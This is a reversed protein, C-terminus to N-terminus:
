DEFIRVVPLTFGPLFPDASLTQTTNFLEVPQGPRHVTATMFDADIVWVVPVGAALSENIFETVNQKVDNLSLIKAVFTPVADILPSRDTLRAVIDPALYVIDIELCTDPDRRLHVGPLCYAEGRPEAQKDIWNGFLYALQASVQSHAQTHYRKERERLQSRILWRDKGTTPCRWCNM